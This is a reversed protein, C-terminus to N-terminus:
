TRTALFNFSPFNQFLQALTPSKFDTGVSGKLKSDAEPLLLAPAIRFTPKSGFRDYSDRV